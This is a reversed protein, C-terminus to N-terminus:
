VKYKERLREELMQKQYANMLIRLKERGQMVDQLNCSHQLRHDTCRNQPFNYTRIKESRFGSGVKRRILLHYIMIINHNTTANYDINEILNFHTSVQLKRNMAVDLQAGQQEM